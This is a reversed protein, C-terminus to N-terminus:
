IEIHTVGDVQDFHGIKLLVGRSGPFEAVFAPDCVMLPLAVPVAVTATLSTAISTAYAIGLSLAVFWPISEVAAMKLRDRKAQSLKKEIGFQEIVEDRELPNTLALMEEFSCGDSRHSCYMNRAGLAIKRRGFELHAQYDDIQKQKRRYRAAVLKGPIGLGFDVADILPRFLRHELYMRRYASFTADQVLAIAAMISEYSTFILEDGYEVCLPKLYWVKVGKRKGPGELFEELRTRVCNPIDDTIEGFRNQETVSVFLKGKPLRISAKYLDIERVQQFASRHKKEIDSWCRSKSAWPGHSRLMTKAFEDGSDKPPVWISEGVWEGFPELEQALSFPPAPIEPAELTSVRRATRALPAPLLTATNM